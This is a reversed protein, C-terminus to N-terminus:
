QRKWGPWWKMSKDEVAVNNREFLPFRPINVGRGQEREQREWEEDDLYNDVAVAEIGSGGAEPGGSASIQRQPLWNKDDVEKWEKTADAAAIEPDALAVYAKAVRWDVEKTVTQFRKEARERARRAEYEPDHDM